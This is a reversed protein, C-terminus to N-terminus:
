RAYIRFIKEFRENKIRYYNSRYVARLVHCYKSKFSELTREIESIDGPLAAAAESVSKKLATFTDTYSMSFEQNLLENLTSFPQILKEAEEPSLIGGNRLVEGYLDIEMKADIIKGKIESLEEASKNINQAFRLEEATADKLAQTFDSLKAGGNDFLQADSYARALEKWQEHNIINSSKRAFCFGDVSLIEKIM